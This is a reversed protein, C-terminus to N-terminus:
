KADSTSEEVYFELHEEAFGCGRITEKRTDHMQWYVYGREPVFEIMGIVYYSGPLAERDGDNKPVVRDGVKFVPPQWYAKGWEYIVIPRDSPYWYSDAPDNEYCM